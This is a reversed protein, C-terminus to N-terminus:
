SKYMSDFFNLLFHLRNRVDNEIVGKILPTVSRIISQEIGDFDNYATLIMRDEEKSWKHETISTTDGTNRPSFKWKSGNQMSQDIGTILVCEQATLVESVVTADKLNAPQFKPFIPGSDHQARGTASKECNEYLIDFTQPQALFLSSKQNNQMNPFRRKKPPLHMDSCISTVQPQENKMNDDMCVRLNLNIALQVTNDDCHIRKLEFNKQESIINAERIIKILDCKMTPKLIKFDENKWIVTKKNSEQISINDNKSEIENTSQMRRIDKEPKNEPRSVDKEGVTKDSSISAIIEVEGKTEINDTLFDEERKRKSAKRM